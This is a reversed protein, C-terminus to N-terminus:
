PKFIRNGSKPPICQFHVWTPTSAKDELYLENDVLLQMNIMCWKWLNGDRDLIDVAAGQTHKSQPAKPNIRLQDEQSRLGSTVTMPKAYATRINNIAIYLKNLNKQQEETVPYNKPNLEQM